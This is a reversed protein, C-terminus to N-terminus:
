FGNVTSRSELAPIHCTGTRAPAPTGCAGLNGENTAPVPPQSTLPKHLATIRGWATAIASAWPWNRPDDAPSRRATAQLGQDEAGRALDGDLALHVLWALVTATILAASLWASKISFNHSPFRGIGCDERHPYTRSGSTSGTPTSTAPNAGRGRLSGAVLPM